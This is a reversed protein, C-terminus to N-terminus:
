VQDCHWEGVVELSGDLFGERCAHRQIKGSSTKPISGAKILVISGVAMEHEVSVSRRVADFLAELNGQKRRQLEQVVVLREEGRVEVTFAAGSDARLRPHSEQVTQEIDQPYVNVGHLIILDKIRGTVFMEGDLM